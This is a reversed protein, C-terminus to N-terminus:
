LCSLFAGMSNPNPMFGTYRYGRLETGHRLALQLIALFIVCYGLFFLYKFINSVGLEKAIQAGFGPLGLMMFIWLFYRDWSGSAVARVFIYLCVTFIAFTTIISTGRGTISAILGYLILPILLIWKLAYAVSFMFGPLPVRGTEDDKSGSMSIAYCLVVIVFFIMRGRPSMLALVVATLGVLCLVLLGPLTLASVLGNIISFTRSFIDM